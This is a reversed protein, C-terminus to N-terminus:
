KQLYKEINLVYGEYSVLNNGILSPWMGYPANMNFLKKGTQTSFVTLRDRGTLLLNGTLPDLGKMEMDDTTPIETVLAYDPCRRVEVKGEYWAYPIVIQDPHVPNFMWNDQSADPVPWSHQKVVRYNDLELLQVAFDSTFSLFKGDPSFALNTTKAPIDAVVSGDPECIHVVCNNDTSLRSYWAFKDDATFGLMRCYPSCDFTHEVSLTKANLIVVHYDNVVALRASAPSSYLENFYTGEQRFSILPETSPLRYANVKDGFAAAYMLGTVPNYVWKAGREQEMYVGPSGARIDKIYLPESPNDVSAMMLSINSTVGFGTVPLSISDQGPAISLPSHYDISYSLACTYPLKWRLNVKELDWSSVYFECMDPVELEGIPWYLDSFGEYELRMSVQYTAKFGVNQKDVFTTTGAPVTVESQGYLWKDCYISYSKVKLHSLVPQAWDLAFFGDATTRSSLAGPINLDYDIVVPWSMTGAYGEQELQDAISGSGSVAFFSCTLTYTGSPFREQNILISGNATMDNLEWSYDGMKFVVRKIEKGFASLSYNLNTSRNILLAQGDTLANLDVSVNIQDQPKEVEVFNEHIKYECAALLFLCCVCYIFTDKM